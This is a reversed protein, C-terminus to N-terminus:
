SILSDNLRKERSELSSECNAVNQEGVQYKINFFALQEQAEKENYDKSNPNFRNDYFRTFKNYKTNWLCVIGWRYKEGDRVNAFVVGDSRIFLHAAPLHIMDSDTLQWFKKEAKEWNKLLHDIANTITRENKDVLPLPGKEEESVNIIRQNSTLTSMFTVM